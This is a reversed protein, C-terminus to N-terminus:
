KGKCVSIRDSGLGTLASVAKVIELRVSPDGGGSCVVLAGQYEPSLQQLPVAEEVGSGKSVVVTTVASEVAGDKESATGDQALIQRGSSKVTLVVTVKGAGEVQSLANELRREVDDAQFPEPMRTEEKRGGKDPSPLLLLLVGVLIVLLVYKYKGAAALLAKIRMAGTGEGKM